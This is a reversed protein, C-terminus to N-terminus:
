RQRRVALALGSLALLALTAPEPIVECKSVSLASINLHFPTSGGASSGRYGFSLADFTLYPSGSNDVGSHSYVNTGGTGVGSYINEEITVDAGDYSLKFTLTYDQGNVFSVRPATGNNYAIGTPLDYAGGGANNFLVDQNENVTDTQAPRTYNQPSNSSGTQSVRGVYGTWNQANGTVFTTLSDSMGANAMGGGPVPYSGGSNFLGVNLSESSGEVDLLLDPKFTMQLEVCDGASALVVPSTTFLAQMEAFGSSTQPMQLDVTAGVNSATANKSSMVAYDTSTATPAAPTAAMATSGAAAFGENYVTVMAASSFAPALCVGCVAAFLAVLVIRNRKMM